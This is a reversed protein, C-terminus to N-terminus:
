MEGRRVPSIASWTICNLATKQATQQQIKAVVRLLVSTLAVRAGCEAFETCSHSLTQSVTGNKFDHDVFRCM